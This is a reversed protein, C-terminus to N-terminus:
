PIQEAILNGQQWRLMLKVVVIGEVKCGAGFQRAERAGFDLVPLTPTSALISARGTV